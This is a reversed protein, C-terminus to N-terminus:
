LAVQNLSKEVISSVVIYENALPKNVRATLTVTKTLPVKSIKFTVHLCWQLVANLGIKFQVFYPSMSQVHLHLRIPVSHKVIITLLALEQKRVKSICDIHYSLRVFNLSQQHFILLSHIREAISVFKVM